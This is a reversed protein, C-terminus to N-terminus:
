ANEKICLLWSRFCNLNLFIAITVRAVETVARETVIKMAYLPNPTQAKTADFRIVAKIGATTYQNVLLQCGNHTNELVENLSSNLKPKKM